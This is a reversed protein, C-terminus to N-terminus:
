SWSKTLANTIKWAAILGITLPGFILMSLSRNESVWWGIPTARDVLDFAAGIFLSASINAALMLLMFVVFSLGVNKREKEM